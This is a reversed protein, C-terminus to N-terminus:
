FTTREFKLRLNVFHQQIETESFTQIIKDQKIKYENFITISQAMLSLESEIETCRPINKVKLTGGNSMDPVYCNVVVVGSQIQGDIGTLFTVVIDEVKSDHPRMGEKYVGGSILACISSSKIMDFMDQEIQGATKKM